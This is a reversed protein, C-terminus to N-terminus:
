ESASEDTCSSDASEYEYDLVRLEGGIEFVDSVGAAIYEWYAQRAQRSQRIVIGEAGLWNTLIDGGTAADVARASEACTPLADNIAAAVAERLAESADGGVEIGQDCVGHFGVAVDYMNDAITALEPFSAPHIESSPVWWRQFSGAPNHWGMARWCTADTLTATILAQEETMPQIGGGHPAVIVHKSGRDDLREVFENQARAEERSLDPHPVTASLEAEFIEDAITCNSTPEPCTSESSPADEDVGSGLDLRCRARDGMRVIDEPYEPTTHAVTYVAYEDDTRTIRVQQGEELGLSTLFQPDAAIATTDDTLGTQDDRLPCIVGLNEDGETEDGAHSAAEYTGVAAGLLAPSGLAAALFTRRSPKLRDIRRREATKDVNASEDTMPPIEEPTYGGGPVTIAARNSRTDRTQHVVAM